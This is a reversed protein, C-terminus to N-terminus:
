NQSSKLRWVGGTYDNVIRKSRSLASSVTGIPYRATVEMGSKLLADLIDGSSAPGHASIHNFAFQEISFRKLPQHPALEDPSLSDEVVPSQSSSGRHANVGNLFATVDAHLSQCATLESQEAATESQLDRIQAEIDRLRAEHQAIRGEILKLLDESRASHPPSVDDGHVGGAASTQVDGSKM